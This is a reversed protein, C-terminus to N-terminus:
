DMLLSYASMISASDRFHKVSFLFLKERQISFSQSTVPAGDEIPRLQRPEWLTDKVATDTSQQRFVSPFAPAGPVNMHSTLVPQSCPPAKSVRSGGM